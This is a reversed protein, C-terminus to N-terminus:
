RKRLVQNRIVNELVISVSTNTDMARKKVWADFQEHLDKPLQITLLHLGKRARYAAQKEADNAYKRPRGVPRPIGGVMDATRNDEAQKAM